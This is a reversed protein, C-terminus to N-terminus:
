EKAATDMLITVPGDNILSVQMDAGFIGTGIPKGLLNQLCQVTYDYLPKAIDPKAARIFSPRNGKKTAAFLTFQSVVIIDGDTEIIDKNILGDADNFIRLRVIKGCLWDADGQTDSEEVGLLILLGPGIASVPEGEVTVSAQQVRQIVVRM